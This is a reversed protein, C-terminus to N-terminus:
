LSFRPILEPNSRKVADIGNCFRPQKNELWWSSIDDVSITRPFDAMYRMCDVSIRLRNLDDTHLAYWVFFDIYEGNEHRDALNKIADNFLDLESDKDMIITFLDKDKLEERRVYQFGQENMCRKSSYNTLRMLQRSTVANFLEVAFQNAKSLRKLEYYSDLDGSEAKIELQVLRVNESAERYLNSFVSVQERLEEIHGASVSIRNTLSALQPAVVSNAMNTTYSRIEEAILERTVSRTLAEKIGPWGLWLSLGGTVATVIVWGLGKKFVESRLDKAYTELLGMFVKREIPTAMAEEIMKHVNERGLGRCQKAGRDTAM